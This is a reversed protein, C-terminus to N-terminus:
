SDKEIELKLMHRELIDGTSHNEFVQVSDWMHGLDNTRMLAIHTLYTKTPRYSLALLAYAVKEDLFEINSMTAGVAGELGAPLCIHINRESWTEGSDLSELLRPPDILLLRHQRDCVLMPNYRDLCRYSWSRGGDLSRLLHTKARDFLWPDQWTVFISHPSQLLLCRFEEAPWSIPPEWFFSRPNFGITNDEWKVGGDYTVFMRAVTCRNLSQSSENPAAEHSVAVGFGNELVWVSDWYAGTPMAPLQSLDPNGKVFPSTRSPAIRGSQQWTENEDLSTYVITDIAVRMCKISM